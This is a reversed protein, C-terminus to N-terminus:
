IMRMRMVLVGTTMTAQLDAEAPATRLGGALVVVGAVVGVGVLVRSFLGSRWM